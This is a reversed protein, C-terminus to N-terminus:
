SFVLYVILIEISFLALLEIFGVFIFRFGYCVITLSIFIFVLCIRIELMLVLSRNILDKWILSDKLYFKFDIMFILWLSQPHFIHLLIYLINLIVNVFYIFFNVMM